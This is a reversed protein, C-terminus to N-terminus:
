QWPNREKELDRDCGRDGPQARDLACRLRRCGFSRDRGSACQSMVAFVQRKAVDDGRSFDPLQALRAKIAERQSADRYLFDYSRDPAPHDPFLRRIEGDSFGMANLLVGPAYYEPSADKGARLDNRCWFEDRGSGDRWVTGITRVRACLTADRRKIALNYFCESQVYRVQLQPHGFIPGHEVAEPSIKECLEPINLHVALGGYAMEFITPAHTKALLVGGLLAVFVAALLKTASRLSDKM